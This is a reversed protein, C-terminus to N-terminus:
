KPHKLLLGKSMSYEQLEHIKSKIFGQKKKQVAKEPGAKRCEPPQVYRFETRPSTISLSNQTDSKLNITQKGASVETNIYTSVTSPTNKSKTLTKATLKDNSTKRKTFQGIKSVSIRNLEYKKEASKESDCSIRQDRKPAKHRPCDYTKFPFQNSDLFEEFNVFNRRDDEGAASEALHSFHSPRPQAEGISGLDAEAPMQDNQLYISTSFAPQSCNQEEEPEGTFDIVDKCSIYRQFITDFQSEDRVHAHQKMAAFQSVQSLAAAVRPEEERFQDNTKDQDLSDYLCSQPQGRLQLNAPEVRGSDRMQIYISRSLGTSTPKSKGHELYHPQSARPRQLRISDKLKQVLCLPTHEKSETSQNVIKRLPSGTSLKQLPSSERSRQFSQDGNVSSSNSDVLQQKREFLLEVPVEVPQSHEM